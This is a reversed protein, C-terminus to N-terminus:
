ICCGWGFAAAGGSADGMQISPAVVAYNLSDSYNTGNYLTSVLIQDAGLSNLYDLTIQAKGTADTLATTPVVQALSTSVSVIQNAVPNSKEDLLTLTLYGPKDASIVTVDSDTSASGDKLTMAISLTSTVTTNTSTVAYNKTASFAEGSTLSSTVVLSDAGVANNYELMATAMGSSDTLFSTPDIKALSTDVNVIQNPAANGDQDVVQFTLYGPNGPSITTINNDTSAPGDRLFISVSLSTPVSTTATAGAGSGGTGTGSIVPQDSCGSMVSALSFLALTFLLKITKM